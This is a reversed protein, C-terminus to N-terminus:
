RSRNEHSDEYINIFEGKSCAHFGRGILAQGGASECRRIFDVDQRYGWWAIAAAIAILFVLLAILRKISNM